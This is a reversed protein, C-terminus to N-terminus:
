LGPRSPTNVGKNVPRPGDAQNDWYSPAPCEEDRQKRCKYEKLAFVLKAFDDPDTPLSKHGMKALRPEWNQKLRRFCCQYKHDIIYAVRRKIDALLKDRNIEDGLVKLQTDTLEYVFEDDVFFKM